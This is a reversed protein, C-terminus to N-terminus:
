PGNEFDSHLRLRLCIALAELVREESERMYMKRVRGHQRYVQLFAIIHELWFRLTAERKSSAWRKSYHKLAERVAYNTFPFRGVGIKQNM